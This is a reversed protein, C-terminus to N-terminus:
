QRIGAPRYHGKKVKQGRPELDEGRGEQVGGDKGGKRKGRREEKGGERM